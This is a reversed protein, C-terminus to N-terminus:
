LNRGSSVSPHIKLKVKRSFDEFNHRTDAKYRTRKISIESKGGIKVFMYYGVDKTVNAVDAELFKHLKSLKTISRKSEVARGIIVSIDSVIPNLSM